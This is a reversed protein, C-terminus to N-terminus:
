LQLEEQQAATRKYHARKARAQHKRRWRSWKVVQEPAPMERWVLWWILRRVEPVTLPILEEAEARTTPDKKSPGCQIPDCRTSAGGNSLRTRVDGAHYTSVM